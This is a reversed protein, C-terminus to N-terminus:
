SAIIDGWASEFCLQTRARGGSLDGHHQIPIETKYACPTGCAWLTKAEQWTDVESWVAVM